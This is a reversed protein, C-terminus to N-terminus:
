TGLDRYLVEYEQSTMYMYPADQFTDLESIRYISDIESGDSLTGQFSEFVRKMARALTKAQLFTAGQTWFEIRAKTFVDPGDMTMTNIEMAFGYVVFPMPAGEPAQMAFIGTTGDTRPGMAAQFGSDATLLAFLGIALM